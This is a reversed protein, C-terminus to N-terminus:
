HGTGFVMAITDQVWYWRELTRYGISWRELTRYGIIWRELTRYWIGDSYHGTGLVM